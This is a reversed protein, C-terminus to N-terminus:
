PRVVNPAIRFMQGPQRRTKPRQAVMQAEYDQWPIGLNKVSAQFAARQSPLMKALNQGTVFPPAGPLTSAHRPSALQGGSFLTRLWNLGGSFDRRRAPFQPTGQFVTRVGPAARQPTPQIPDPPPPPLDEFFPDDSFVPRSPPTEIPVEDGLPQIPGPTPLPLDEFFPDDSLVPRSPQTEIPVEDEPFRPTITPAVGEPFFLDPGITAPDFGGTEADQIDQFVQHSPPLGAQTALRRLDEYEAAKDAEQQARAIVAPDTASVVDMEPELTPDFPIDGLGRAAAPPTILPPQPAVAAVPPAPPATPVAGRGGPPTFFQGAFRDQGFQRMIDPTIEPRPVDGPMVARDPGGQLMYWWTLWDGPSQALAIAAKQVDLATQTERQRMDFLQKERDFKTQMLRWEGSPTRAWSNGQEDEFLEPRALPDIPTEPRDLERVSGGPSFQIYQQGNPATHVRPYAGQAATDQQTRQKELWRNISDQRLQNGYPTIRWEGAKLPTESDKSAKEEAKTVQHWLSVWFDNLHPLWGPPPDFPGTGYGGAYQPVQPTQPTQPISPPLSPPGNEGNTPPPAQNGDTGFGPPMLQRRMREAVGESPTSPTRLSQQTTAGLPANGEQTVTYEGLIQRRIRDRITEGPRPLQTEVPVVGGRFTLRANELHAQLEQLGGTGTGARPFEVSTTANGQPDTEILLFREEGNEDDMQEVTWNLSEAMAQLQEFTSVGRGQERGAAMMM